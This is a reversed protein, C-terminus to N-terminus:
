LNMPNITAYTKMPKMPEDSYYHCLTKMPKMPEDSYYHCLTKMPKM